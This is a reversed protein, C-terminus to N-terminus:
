TAIITEMWPRWKLHLRFCVGISDDARTKGSFAYPQVYTARQNRAPQAHNCTPDDLAHGVLRPRLGAFWQVRGVARPEVYWPGRDTTTSLTRKPNAHM